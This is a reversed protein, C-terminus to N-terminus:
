PLPISMLLHINSLLRLVKRGSLTLNTCKSTYEIAMMMFYAVICMYIHGKVRKEEWHYLPGLDLDNKLIKFANEVTNLHKYIEILRKKSYNM